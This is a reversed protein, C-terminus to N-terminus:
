GDALQQGGVGGLVALHRGGLHEVEHDLVRAVGRGDHGALLGRALVRSRHAPREVGLGPLDLVLGPKFHVAQNRATRQLLVRRPEKFPHLEARVQRAPHRHAGHQLVLRQVEHPQARKQLPGVVRRPQQIHLKVRHLAVEHARGRRLVLVVVEVM